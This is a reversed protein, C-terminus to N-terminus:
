ENKSNVLYSMLARHWPGMKGLINIDHKAKAEEEALAKILVGYEQRAHRAPKTGNAIRSALYISVINAPMFHCRATVHKTLRDYTISESLSLVDEVREDPVFLDYKVYFFDNHPAPVIHPIEEDIIKWEDFVVNKGGGLPITVYNWAAFGESKSTAEGGFKVEDDSSKRNLSAPKGLVFAVQSAREVANAHEWELELINQARSKPQQNIAKRLLMQSEKEKSYSMQYFTFINTYADNKTLELIVCV